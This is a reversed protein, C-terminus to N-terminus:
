ILDTAKRKRFLEEIVRKDVSDRYVVYQVLVSKKQGIRHARDAAQDNESPVWSYEVFIVRSAKTLTFGVGMALYNGIFVRSDGNQFKRVLAQRKGVAVDGSIVLPSYKKLGEALAAVVPKHFAFVLLAEDTEDLIAEIYEVSPKVKEMGLLRRYTATHLEDGDPDLSSQLQHKMLDDISRYAKGLHRDMKSLMPSMGSSVVFAQEIKPPLDLLEKKQRLMFHGTPAILQRELQDINSAGTFDWGFNNKFGACFKIGYDFKSMHNIAGPCIASLMPYLEIPRNPMPTGSMLILYPFIRILGPKLRNKSREGFLGITRKATPNTFRHAEDVILLASTFVKKRRGKVLRHSTYELFATIREHIDSHILHSDPVILLDVESGGYIEQGYVDIRLGPAWRRFEDEINAVLFPPTVYVTPIARARAVIAAVITKGLGPDLRLYCVDRSLAFRAAEVQHKQLTFGGPPAPLLGTWPSVPHLEKSLQIKASAVAYERLRAAVEPSSTYWTKAEGHWSFGANKPLERDKFHCAFLFVNGDFTLAAM